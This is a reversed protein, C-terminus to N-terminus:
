EKPASERVVQMVEMLPGEEVYYEAIVRVADGPMIKITLGACSKIPLGLLNMVKPAIEQSIATM